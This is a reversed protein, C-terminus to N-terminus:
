CFFIFLKDEDKLVMEKVKKQMTINSIVIVDEKTRLLDKDLKMQHRSGRFSRRKKLAERFHYLSAAQEFMGHFNKVHVGAQGKVKLRAKVHHNTRRIDGRM